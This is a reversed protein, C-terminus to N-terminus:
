NNTETKKDSDGEAVPAKAMREIRNKEQTELAKPIFFIAFVLFGVIFIGGLIHRITELLQV